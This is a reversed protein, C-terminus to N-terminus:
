KENGIADNSFKMPIWFITYYKSGGIEQTSGFSKLLYSKNISGKLTNEDVEAEIEFLLGALMNLSASKNNKTPKGNTDFNQTSTGELLLGGLLSVHMVYSFGSSRKQLHERMHAIPLITVHSEAVSLTPKNQFYQIHESSLGKKSDVLKKAGCLKPSTCGVLSLIVPIILIGQKM